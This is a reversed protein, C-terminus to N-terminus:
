TQTKFFSSLYSLSLSFNYFKRLDLNSCAISFIQTSSSTLINLAVSTEMVDVFNWCLATGNLLIGCTFNYTCTVETFRLGALLDMGFPTSVAGNRDLKCDQNFDV